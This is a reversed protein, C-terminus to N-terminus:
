RMWKELEELQKVFSKLRNEHKQVLESPAKSTFDANNLKNSLFEIEKEILKREKKLRDQEVEPNSLESKLIFIQCSDLVITIYKKDINKLEEKLIEIKNLKTMNKILEITQFDILKDDFILINVNLKIAPHINFNSKINRIEYIIKKITEVQNVIKKKKLENDLENDKDRSKSFYFSNGSKPWKSKMISICNINDLVVLESIKLYIEETIFPMVPHLMKLCQVFVFCAINLSSKKVNASCKLNPKIFEIYWDCLEHWIFDHIKSIAIGIEYQNLNETVEKTLKDCALLIWKDVISWTHGCNYSEECLNIQIDNIRIDNVTIDSKRTNTLILKALNWIKNTFNRGADLKQISFRMDNGSANGVVLAFRLVDAGYKDIVDIPDIGNGLSKSMKRGNEDRVLGHILVKKFPKLNVQYLGMFIMRAVWFLIIDYGTVLTDVPYFNHFDQTAEPWGLTTSPWLASSFWTDLVDEDQTMSSNCKECTSVETESVRMNDCKTCYYAPIQHGWWLQRSICWDQLNNVWNVYTKSFREPVFKIDCNNVIKLGEDKFLKMDVFWQDSILPEIKQSCRYCKGVRHIHNETKFLLEAKKLENIVEERAEHRDLGQFKDAYENLRGNEDIVSISELNHRLGIEFDDPSHAPTVKLIGTGFEKEVYSDSIISIERNILPVKVTKNILHKYREDDPNVAVAVDGFITEPRATAIVLYDEVLNTDQLKYKIFWLNGSEEIYEVEADSLATKCCVCYNIIRNGKYILKKNYLDVFVKKVTNEYEDDMTFRFRSFDCSAGLKKIQSIIRAQYKDKWQWTKELFKERGLDYRSLNEIKKIQEEVKIQTAIGAHDAGPLYLVRFGLMRKFRVILDQITIDLAHGIHLHGTVNPPPMVICFNGENQDNYNDPDFYNSDLWNKYIKGETLNFDYKSCLDM